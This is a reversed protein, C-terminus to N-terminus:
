RRLEIRDKLLVLRDATMQELKKLRDEQPTDPKIMTKLKAMGEQIRPLAATYPRLFDDRQTLLFGREGTETDVLGLLIGTTLDLIQHAEAVQEANEHLLVTNHYNLVAIAIM